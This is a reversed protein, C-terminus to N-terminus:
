VKALYENLEVRWLRQLEDFSKQGVVSFIRKPVTTGFLFRDKAQTQPDYNFYAFHTIEETARSYPDDESVTVPMIRCLKIALTTWGRIAAGSAGKTNAQRQHTIQHTSTLSALTM